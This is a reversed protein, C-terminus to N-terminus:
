AALAPQGPVRCGQRLPATDPVQRGAHRCLLEDRRAAEVIAVLKGDDLIVRDGVGVHELLQPEPVALVHQEPDPSEGSANLLLTDGVSVSLVRPQWPLAGVRGEKLVAGGREWVLPLGSTVYLSRSCEALVGGEGPGRVVLGRDREGADELRLVDGRELRPLWDPPVPLQAGASYAAVLLVETPALSKGRRDKRRPMHLVAEEHQRIEARLKPGPLDVIVRGARDHASARAKFTSAIAEWERPSEHAGNIRLLDTGAEVLGDAWAPTADV